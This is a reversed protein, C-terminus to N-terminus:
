MINRSGKTQERSQTSFTSKRSLAVKSPSRSPSQPLNSPKAPSELSQKLFPNVKRGKSRAQKPGDDNEEDSASSSLDDFSRKPTRTSEPTIRQHASDDDFETQQEVTPLYRQAGVGIHDDFDDMPSADLEEEPPFKLARTEEIKDALKTNGARDAFKIAINLANESHLRETLDLAREVKGALLAVQYLKLTVKDKVAVFIFNCPLLFISSRILAHEVKHKLIASVVNNCLQAYEDDLEAIDFGDLAKMDAM